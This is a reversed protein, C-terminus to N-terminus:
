RLADAATSSELGGAVRLFTTARLLHVPKRFAFGGDLGRQVWAPALRRAAMFGDRAKEIEGLGVLNMALMGYVQPIDPPTLSDAIRTSLVTPM